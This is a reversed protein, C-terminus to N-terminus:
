CGISVRNLERQRILCPMHTLALCTCILSMGRYDVLTMLPLYVGEAAADGVELVRALSRLEHGAAKMALSDAAQLIPTFGRTNRERKEINEKTERLEKL